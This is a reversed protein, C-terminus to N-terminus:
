SVNQKKIIYNYVWTLTFTPVFDSFPLIEEIFTVAGAVKGLSGKYMWTMLFGALPAWVVDSFEGIIPITFSLMGIADFLVALILKRNKEEKIDTATQIQISDKM